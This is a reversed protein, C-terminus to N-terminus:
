WFKGQRLDMEQPSIFHDMGARLIFCFAIGRQQAKRLATAIKELEAVVAESETVAEPQERVKRLLGLITELGLRPDHWALTEGFRDDNFGFASLTPLGAEAALQDLQRCNKALARGGSFTDIDGVRERFYPVIRCRFSDVVGALLGKAFLLFFAGCVLFGLGSGLGHDYLFGLGNFVAGSGALLLLPLSCGVTWALSRAM